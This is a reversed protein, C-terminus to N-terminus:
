FGGLVTEDLPDFVVSLPELVAREAGPAGANTPLRSSLARRQRIPRPQM